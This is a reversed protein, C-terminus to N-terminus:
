RASGRGGSKTWVRGRGRRGRGLTPRARLRHPVSGDGGLRIRSRHTVAIPEAYRCAALSLWPITAFSQTCASVSALSSGSIRFRKMRRVDALDVLEHDAHDLARLCGAPEGPVTIRFGLRPDEDREPEQSRHAFTQAAHEVGVERSDGGAAAAPQGSVVDSGILRLGPRPPCRPREGGAAPKTAPTIGHSSVRQTTSLASQIGSRSQRLLSGRSRPRRGGCADANATSAVPVGAGTAGVSRSTM